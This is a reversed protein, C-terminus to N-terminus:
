VIQNEQNVAKPFKIVFTSGKGLDSTFNVEGGQIEVIRRTTALGLGTGGPKGSVYPRFISDEKEKPIGEGTDKISIYVYESSVNVSMSLERKGEIGDMAQVANLLINLIAQKLLASDLCISLNEDSVSFSFEVGHRKAQPMFFDGIETILLNINTKILDPNLRGAFRLFDELIDGLRHVERSLSNIRALLRHKQSNEIELSEIAEGLLQANLGVTSLPNKIEHALGGTMEGLSALHEADKMRKSASTARRYAVLLLFFTGPAAVLLGSFFWLWGNM